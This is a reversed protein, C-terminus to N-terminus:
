KKEMDGLQERLQRADDILNDFIKNLSLKEFDTRRRLLQKRERASEYSRALLSEEGSCRAVAVVDDMFNSLKSTIATINAQFDLLLRDHKRNWWRRHCEFEDIKLSLDINERLFEEKMRFVEKEFEGALKFAEAPLKNIIDAIGLGDKKGNAKANHLLQVLSNILTLAQVGGQVAIDPSVMYM